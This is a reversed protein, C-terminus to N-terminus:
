QNTIPRPYSHIQSNQHMEINTNGEMWKRRAIFLVCAASGFQIWFAKRHVHVIRLNQFLTYAKSSCRRFSSLLVRKFHACKSICWCKECSYISRSLRKCHWPGFRHLIGKSCLTFLISWLPKHQKKAIMLPISILRAANMLRECWFLSLLRTRKSGKRQTQIELDFCQLVHWTQGSRCCEAAHIERSSM